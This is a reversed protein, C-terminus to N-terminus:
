DSIDNTQKVMAKFIVVVADRVKDGIVFDLNHHNEM